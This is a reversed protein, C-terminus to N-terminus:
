LQCIFNGFNAIFVSGVQSIFVPEASITIQMAPKAMQEM